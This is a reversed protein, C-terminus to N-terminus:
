KTVTSELATYRARIAPRAEPNSFFMLWDLAASVGHQPDNALACFNKYIKANYRYKVEALVPSNGANLKVQPQNTTHDNSANM